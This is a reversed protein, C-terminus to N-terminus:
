GKKLLLQYSFLLFIVGLGLLDPLLQIKKYVHISM